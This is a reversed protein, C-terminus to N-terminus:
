YSYGVGAFFVDTDRNYDALVRHWTARVNWRPSFRYSASLSILAALREHGGDVNVPDHNDLAIYPGLGVGLAVRDGHARRVLWLQSALGNRRIVRTDGEHLATVSWDLWHRLSRRYELAGAISQDSAFSNVVTQGFMVNIENRALPMDGEPKAEVLGSGWRYGLGLLIADTDFSARTVARNGRLVMFWRRHFQWQAELTYIVGTGHLNAYGDPGDRVTDFYYFPGAAAALTVNPGFSPSRLWLQAALGDRHHGEYHGQNSYLLSVEFPGAVREIYEVGWPVAREGVTQQKGSGSYVILAQATARQMGGAVAALGVVGALVAVRLRM